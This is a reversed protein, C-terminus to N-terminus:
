QKSLVKDIAEWSFSLGLIDFNEGISNAGVFWKNGNDLSVAVFYEPEIKVITDEESCLIIHYEYLYLLGNGEKVKNKIDTVIEGVYKAKPWHELFSKMRSPLNEKLYKKYLKKIELDTKNPSEKKLYKFVDPYTLAMIKDYNLDNTAKEMVKIDNLLTREIKNQPTYESYMRHSYGIPIPFDEQQMQETTDVHSTDTVIPQSINRQAVERNHEDIQLLYVIVLVIVGLLGIITIKYNKM